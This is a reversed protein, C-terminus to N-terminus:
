HRRSDKRSNQCRRNRKSSVVAAKPVWIRREQRRRRGDVTSEFKDDSIQIHVVLFGTTQLEIRTESMDM